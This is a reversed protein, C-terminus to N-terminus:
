EVALLESHRPCFEYESELQAFVLEDQWYANYLRCGRDECFPNGTLTYFVAQIVYGKVVETLREDDYDVFRGKFRDKLGSPDRKLM